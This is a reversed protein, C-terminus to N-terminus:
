QSQIQVIMRVVIQVIATLESTVLLAAITNTQQTLAVRARKQTMETHVQYSDHANTLHGQTTSPCKGDLNALGLSYALGTNQPCLMAQFLPNHLTCTGRHMPMIHACTARRFHYSQTMTTTAVTAATEVELPWPPMPTMPEPFEHTISQKVPICQHQAASNM